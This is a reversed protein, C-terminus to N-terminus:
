GIGPVGGPGGLGPVRAVSATATTPVVVKDGAQLGSVIETFQDNSVGTQVQRTETKGETDLV